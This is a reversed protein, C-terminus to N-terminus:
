LYAKRSTSKAPNGFLDFEPLGSILENMVTIQDKLKGYEDIHKISINEKLLVKGILKSRHCDCPKSESCMVVINFNKKCATILRNLGKKFFDKTKVMEYDVKGELDYCNIDKPRGGLTDGMFVYTIGNEELTNRLLAQNYQPNYKSYPQSRVDILFEIDLGQLLQLFNNIERTGHGITYLPKKEM